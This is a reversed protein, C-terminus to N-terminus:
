GSECGQVHDRRYATSRLLYGCDLAEACPRFGAAELHLDVEPLCRVPVGATWGFFRYLVWLCLKARLRLVTRDPLVFDGLLWQADVAASDALQQVM